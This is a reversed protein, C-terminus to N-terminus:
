RIGTVRASTALPQTNAAANCNPDDVRVEVTITSLGPRPINPTIQWCRFYQTMDADDNPDIPNTPDQTMAAAMFPGGISSMAQFRELQSEALYLAKSRQASNAGSRMAQLQALAVGTMGVMLLTLAIMVEILSFGEQTPLRRPTSKSNM